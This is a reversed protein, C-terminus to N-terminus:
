IKFYNNNKFINDENQAALQLQSEIQAARTAIM